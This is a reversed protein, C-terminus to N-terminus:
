PQKPVVGLFERCGWASCTGRPINPIRRSYLLVFNWPSKAPTLTPITESRAEQIGLERRWLMTKISKMVDNKHILDWHWCSWPLAQLWVGRLTHFGLFFCFIGPFFWFIGPFFFCFVGSFFLSYVWGYIGRSTLTVQQGHKGGPIWAPFM